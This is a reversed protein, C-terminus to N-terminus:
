RASRTWCHGGFPDAQSVPGRGAAARGQQPQDLEDGMSALEGTLIIAPVQSAVANRIAAVAETGVKGERLRYDAIVLDPARGASALGRLAEACDSAAIVNWGYDELVMSLTELVLPDDDIIVVLRGAMDAFNM